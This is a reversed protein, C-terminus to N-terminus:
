CVPRVRLHRLTSLLDNPNILWVGALYIGAGVLLDTVLVAAPALYGVMIPKLLFITVMAMLSSTWAPLLVRLDDKLRIHVLRSVALFLPPFSALQALVYAWAVAVIGERVTLLVGTLTLVVTLLELQLHWKPRGYALVLYRKLYCVSQAIGALSLVRMAPIVRDWQAGFVTAVIEPALVAIALFVPFSLLAVQSTAQLYVTRGREPEQQLRAFTPLSVHWVVGSIMQLVMCICRSAVDFLGVAIPGLFFGIILNAAYLHAFAALQGVVVYKGFGFMDQFHSRTWRFRPRWDSQWWILCSESTRNVLQYFVLSWVGMGRWAALIGVIGGATVGVIGAVALSRFRFTRYLLARHVSAFAGILLLPSLGRMVGPLQPERLVRGIWPAGWVVALTLVLALVVNMWFVTNLHDAQLDKRQIVAHGFGQDQFVLLFGIYVSSLAVLGFAQPGLRRALVALFVFTLGRNSWLGVTSWFTAQLVERRLDRHAAEREGVNDGDGIRRVAHDTKPGREQHLLGPVPPATKQTM